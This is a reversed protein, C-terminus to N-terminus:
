KFSISRRTGFESQSVERPTAMERDLPLEKIIIKENKEGESIRIQINEPIKIKIKNKM